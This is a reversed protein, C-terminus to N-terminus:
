AGITRLVDRVDTRVALDPSSSLVDDPVAIWREFYAAAEAPTM